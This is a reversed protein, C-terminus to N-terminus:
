AGGFRVTDSQTRPKYVLHDLSELKRKRTSEQETMPRLYNPAMQLLHEPKITSVTHMYQRTTMLLTHYLVFQGSSSQQKFLVSSPHVQAPFAGALTAYAGNELKAANKFFGACLACLVNEDKTGHGRSNRLRGLPLTHNLAFSELQDRVDRVKTMASYQVFNAACWNKAYGSAEWQNYVNMLTLHDSNSRRLKAHAQKIRQQLRLFAHQQEKKSLTPDMSKRSAHEWVSPISLMAIVTLVPQLCDLDASVLLVKALEPDLPMEAMKRGDETLEGGSDLAGLHYLDLLSKYIDLPKPKDMFDFDLVDSVGFSKLLLVIQGLNSRKIEPEVADQMESEFTKKTYLRYCVGPATRGARGARQNAEAKSVPVVRLTSNGIRSDFIQTKTFGPDVVYRITSITLSTEAINTAFIAKRVSDSTTMALNQLDVPLASYLPVAVLDRLGLKDITQVALEIEAQGTLFVLIDRGGCEPDGEHISKVAKISAEVYDFIPESTYKIEVPFTRGPITVIPAGGFYRSFKESDLTASTVIVRLDPRRASLNKLLAFLVDTALTREHAEDLMIVSYASLEPDTLAERLLIGDTMYKIRTANSSKEDFRVSYGVLEGLNSRMEHSVRAAVSKAAIRRPQTCAIRKQYGYDHLFQTIQTSKGSGTDGVIIVIPNEELRRLIQEKFRHIPLESGDIDSSRTGSHRGIERFRRELIAASKGEVDDRQLAADSKLKSATYKAAQTLWTREVQAGVVSAPESIGYLDHWRSLFAPVDTRVVLDASIPTLCIESERFGTFVFRLTKGVMSSATEARAVVLRLAEPSIIEVRVEDTVRAMIKADVPLNVAALLAAIANRASKPFPKLEVALKGADGRLSVLYECLVRNDIGLRRSLLRQVADVAAADHM